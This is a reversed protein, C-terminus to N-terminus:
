DRINMEHALRVFDRVMSHDKVGPASEVGSAVDVAAPRVQSIASAVNSPSLGGALVVSTAPNDAVFSQGLGWEFSTGSGGYEGPCYADLLVTSAQFGSVVDLSSADRVTFAKLCVTAPSFKKYYDSTEDGHFQAAHVVGDELLRMVEETGANVFVGIREVSDPMDRMWKSLESPDLYRKSHPWFNFGLADAGADCASLADHLTRVGCIKVGVHEQQVLRPKM